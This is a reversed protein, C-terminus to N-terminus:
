SDIEPKTDKLYYDAIALTQRKGLIKLTSQGSKVCKFCPRRCLGVSVLYVFQEDAIATLDRFFVPTLSLQIVYLASSLFLTPEM